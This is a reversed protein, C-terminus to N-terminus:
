RGMAAANAASRPLWRTRAPTTSLYWIWGPGHGVRQYHDALTQLQWTSDSLADVVM